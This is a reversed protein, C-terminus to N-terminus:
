AASQVARLVADPDARQRFDVDVHAFRITGSRDVVFTAPVPLFWSANGYLTTLDLGKALYSRRVDDTLRFVLGLTLAVGSDVDCLVPYDLSLTSRLLLAGGGIEPTIAVVKGGATQIAAAQTQLSQMEERCYPCWRGRQFSLVLPGTAYLSAPTVPRGEGDPLAFDPLPDGIKPADEGVGAARLQAVLQDYLTVTETKPGETM